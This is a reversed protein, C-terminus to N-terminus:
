SHTELYTHIAQRVFAPTSGWEDHLIHSIQLRVEDTLYVAKSQYPGVAIYLDPLDQGCAEALKWSGLELMEAVAKRIVESFTADPSHRSIFDSIATTQANSLYIFLPKMKASPM